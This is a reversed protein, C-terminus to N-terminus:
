QHYEREGFIASGVRVINAGEEIAVEFDGSMGMSLYRIQGEPFYTKMEEFLAKGQRFVPRVEESDEAIPAMCMLGEVSVHEFQKSVNILQPFEDVSIGSKQEEEAINVQLLVSQIKHERAAIRDIEALLKESDVSQIMSAMPVAQRVKNVQLHGILHWEINPGKYDQFKMKMEQVRNEGVATVGLRVAKELDELPHYKTVAVLKIEDTRHAREKAAEIRSLVDQLAEQM